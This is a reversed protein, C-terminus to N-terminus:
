LGALSLDTGQAIEATDAGIELLLVVVSRDVIEAVTKREIAAVGRGIVAAGNGIFCLLVGVAGNAVIVGCDFEIRAVDLGQAVASRDVGVLAGILARKLVVIANDLKLGILGRTVDGTAESIRAAAVEFIREVIEVLGDREIRFRGDGQKVPAADIEALAFD